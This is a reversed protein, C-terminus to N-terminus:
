GAGFLVIRLFYVLMALALLTFIGIGFKISRDETM